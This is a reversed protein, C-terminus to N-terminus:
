PYSAKAQSVQDHIQRTILFLKLQNSEFLPCTLSIYFCSSCSKVDHIVEANTVNMQRTYKYGIYVYTCQPSYIGYVFCFNNRMRM